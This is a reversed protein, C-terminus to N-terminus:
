SVLVSELSFLVSQHLDSALLDRTELPMSKALFLHGPAAGLTGRVPVVCLTSARGKNGAVTKALFLHRNKNGASM